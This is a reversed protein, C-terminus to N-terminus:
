ERDRAPVQVLGCAALRLGNFAAVIAAPVLSDSVVRLGEARVARSEFATLERVDAVGEAM